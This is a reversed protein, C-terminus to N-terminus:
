ATEDRRIAEGLVADIGDVAAQEMGSLLHAYTNLTLTATSHGLRQSVLKVSNGERLLQSAFFYYRVPLLLM